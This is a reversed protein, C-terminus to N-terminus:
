STAIAQVADIIKQNGSLFNIQNLKSPSLWSLAQNEKGTPEGQYSTVLYVLLEVKRDPYDHTLEILPEQSIVEVGLEEALERVLAQEATEGQELKGGPFEWQEFYQDRVTRQGVLVQGQTNFVVGVAVRMRKM